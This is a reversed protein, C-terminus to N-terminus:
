IDKKIIIIWKVGPRRDLTVDVEFCFYQIQKRKVKFIKRKMCIFYFQNDTNEQKTEDSHKQNVVESSLIHYWSLGLNEPPKWFGFCWPHGIIDVFIM